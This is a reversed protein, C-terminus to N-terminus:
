TNENENAKPANLICRQEPAVSDRIQKLLSIVEAAALFVLGGGILGAGFLALSLELKSLAFLAFGGGVVITIVGLANFVGNM